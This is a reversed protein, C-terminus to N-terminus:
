RVQLAQAEADIVPEALSMDLGIEVFEYEAPVPPPMIARSEVGQEPDGQARRRHIVPRQDALGRWIAGGAHDSNKWEQGLLKEDVGRACVCVGQFRRQRADHM